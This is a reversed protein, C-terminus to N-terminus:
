QSDEPDNNPLYIPKITYLIILWAKEFMRTGSRTNQHISIFVKKKPRTKPVTKM